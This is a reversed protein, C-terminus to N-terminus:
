EQRLQSVLSLLWAPAPTDIAILTRESTQPRGSSGAPWHAGMTSGLQALLRGGQRAVISEVGNIWDSGQWPPVPLASIWNVCCCFLGRSMAPERGVEALKEAHCQTLFILTIVPAIIKTKNGTQTNTQKKREPQPSIAVAKNCFGLSIAHGSQPLPSSHATPSRPGPTMLM